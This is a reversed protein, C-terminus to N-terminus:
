NLDSDAPKDSVRGEAIKIVTALTPLQVAKLRGENIVTTSAALLSVSLDLKAFSM